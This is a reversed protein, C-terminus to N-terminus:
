AHSTYKGIARDLLRKVQMTEVVTQRYQAMKSDGTPAAQEQADEMLYRLYELNQRINRQRIELLGRLLDELVRKENPELSVGTNQVPMTGGRLNGTSVVAGTGGKAKKTDENKVPTTRALLEDAIEMMPLSFGSLVFNLPEAMDQDVSEQLLSFIAQHDTHQFDEPALRGLGVEQLKRDVRYLLAPQRLLVGLCHVELAYNSTTSLAMSASAVSSSNRLLGVASQPLDSRAEANPVVNPL